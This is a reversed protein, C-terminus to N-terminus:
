RLTMVDRVDLTWAFDGGGGGGGYAVSHYRADGGKTAESVTEEPLKM